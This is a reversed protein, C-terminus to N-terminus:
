SRTMYRRMAAIMYDSRTTELYRCTIEPNHGNELWPLGFKELKEVVDRGLEYAITSETVSWWFDNGAFLAGLREFVTCELEKPPMSKARREIEAQVEKWYIGLNLTFQAEDPNNWQSKQLNVLDILVDTERWFIAGKKKFGLTKLYPAIHIGLVEKIIASTQM